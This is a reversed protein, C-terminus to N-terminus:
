QPVVHRTGFLSDTAASSLIEKEPFEWIYHKM